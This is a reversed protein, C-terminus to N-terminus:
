FSIFGPLNYYCTYYISFCINVEPETFLPSYGAIGGYRWPVHCMKHVVDGMIFSM